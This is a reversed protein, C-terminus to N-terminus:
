PLRIFDFGWDCMWRFDDELPSRDSWQNFFYTFNFGKWRPFVKQAPGTIVPKPDPGKLQVQASASATVDAALARGTLAVAGLAASARLFSRRNLNNPM